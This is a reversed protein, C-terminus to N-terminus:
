SIISGSNRKLFQRIKDKELGIRKAEVILQMWEEDLGDMQYNTEVM